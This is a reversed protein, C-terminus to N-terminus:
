GHHVVCVCLGRTFDDDAEVDPGGFDGAEDPALVFEPFNFQEAESAALRHPHGAAHHGVDVARHRRDLLRNLFGLHLHTGLDLEHVDADGPLVDLGELVAAHDGALVKFRFDALLVDLREDLVHALEHHLWTLLNQVDNWLLEGHVVLLADFVGDAHGTHTQLGVEVDDSALRRRRLVNVLADLLGVEFHILQDELGESGGGRHQRVFFFFRAHRQDVDAAAGGVDRDELVADDAVRRHNGEAAVDDAVVDAM